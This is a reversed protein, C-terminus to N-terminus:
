PLVLSRVFAPGGRSTLEIDCWVLFVALVACVLTASMPRMAYAWRAVLITFALALAIGPLILLLVPYRGRPFLAMSALSFLYVSSLCVAVLGLGTPGAGIPDNAFARFWQGFSQKANTVISPGM